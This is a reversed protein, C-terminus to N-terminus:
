LDSITISSSSSRGQLNEKLQSLKRARSCKITESIHMWKGAIVFDAITQPFKGSAFTEGLFLTEVKNGRRKCLHCIPACSCIVNKFMNALWEPRDVSRLLHYGIEDGNVNFAVGQREYTLVDRDYSVAVGPTEVAYWEIRAFNYPNDPTRRESVNVISNAFCKTDFFALAKRQEESTESCIGEMVDELCGRFKGVDLMLTVRLDGTGKRPRYIATRACPRGSGGVWKATIRLMSRFRATCCDISLVSEHEHSRHKPPFTGIHRFTILPRIRMAWSFGKTVMWKVFDGNSRALRIHVDMQNEIRCMTHVTHHLCCISVDTQPKSRSVFDPFYHSSTTHGGSSSTFPDAAGDSWHVDVKRRRQEVTSFVM